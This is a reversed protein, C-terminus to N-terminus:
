KKEELTSLIIVDDTNANLTVYDGASYIKKPNMQALQLYNGNDRRILYLITAGQYVREVLTGHIQNRVDGSDDFSLAEPRISIDVWDEIEPKTTPSTAKGQFISGEDTVARVVYNNESEDVIDQVQARILNTTGIFGAVHQSQPFRYIEEPSGVQLINGDKMVAIKDAM